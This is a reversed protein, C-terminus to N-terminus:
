VSSQRCSQLCTYTAIGYSVALNLSRVGEGNQSSSGGEMPISAIFECKSRVSHPLGTDERGFILIDTIRFRIDSISVDGSKSLAILRNNTSLTSCFEEFNNYININVYKWYDLGARRLHKDDVNFGLPRILNLEIAFAASTRAINGTNQPIRPEFLVTRLITSNINTM